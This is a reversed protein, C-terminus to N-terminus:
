IISVRGQGDEEIVLFAKFSESNWENLGREISIIIRRMLGALDTDM